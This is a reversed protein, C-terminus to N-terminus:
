KIPRPNKSLANGVARAARPRGVARALEKYTTVRGRPIRKVRELLKQFFKKM